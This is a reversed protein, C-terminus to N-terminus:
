LDLIDRQQAMRGSRTIPKPIYMPIVSKKVKKYSNTTCNSMICNILSSLMKLKSKSTKTFISKMQLCNINKGVHLHLKKELIM